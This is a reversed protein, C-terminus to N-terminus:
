VSTGTPPYLSAAGGQLQREERRRARAQEFPPRTQRRPCLCRIASPRVRRVEGVSNRFLGCLSVMGSLNNKNPLLARNYWREEAM